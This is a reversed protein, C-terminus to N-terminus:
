LECYFEKDALNKCPYRWELGGGEILDSSQPPGWTGAPYGYIKISCDNNM